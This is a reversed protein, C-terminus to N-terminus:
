ATAASDAATDAIASLQELAAAVAVSAGAAWSGELGRQGPEPTLVFRL